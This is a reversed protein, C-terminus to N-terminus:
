TLQDQLQPRMGFLAEAGAEADDAQHSRESDIAEFRCRHAGDLDARQGVARYARDEVILEVALSRVLRSSVSDRDKVGVDATGTVVMLGSLLVSM